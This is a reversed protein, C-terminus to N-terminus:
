CRSPARWPVSELELQNLGKEEPCLCTELDVLWGPLPMACVYRMAWHMCSPVCSFFIMASFMVLGCVLILELGHNESLM